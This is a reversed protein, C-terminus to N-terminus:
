ARNSLWALTNSVQTKVDSVSTTSTNQTASVSTPSPTPNQAASVPQSQGGTDIVSTTQGNVGSTINFVSM